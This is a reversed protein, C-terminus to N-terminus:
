DDMGAELRRERNGDQFQGDCDMPVLHDADHGAARVPNDEALLVRWRADPRPSLPAPGPSPTSASSRRFAQKVGWSIPSGGDAALVMGPTLDDVGVSM